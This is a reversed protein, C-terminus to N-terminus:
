KHYKKRYSSLTMNMHTQFFRYFSPVDCFGCAHCIQENTMDTDCLLRCAADLRINRVYDSFTMGTVQKFIHSLHSKSFLAKEAIRELTMEPDGYHELVTLDSSCM